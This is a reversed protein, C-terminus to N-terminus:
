AKPINIIQIEFTLVAFDNLFLKQRAHGLIWKYNHMEVMIVKFAALDEVFV